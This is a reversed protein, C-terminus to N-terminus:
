YYKTCVIQDKFKLNIIKYKDWGVKNLGNKYFAFLKKFKVDMDICNGFLIQHGGVRPILTFEGSAEVFIQEIQAKWFDHQHIQLAIKKLENYQENHQIDKKLDFNINGTAVLVRSSFNKSVPFLVGDFSM